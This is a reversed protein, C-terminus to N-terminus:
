HTVKLGDAWDHIAQWTVPGVVGDSTVTNNRNDHIWQQHSRVAQETAQGFDGDGKITAGSRILFYQLHNVAPGRAGRKIIPHAEGCVGNPSIPPPGVPPASSISQVLRSAANPTGNFEMHMTDKKGSWDGGWSFGLRKWCAIAERTITYHPSRSFENQNWNLDVALGWSHNSATNTGGIPRCCFAGTEAQNLHYGTAVTDDLAKKVLPAIERRCNVSVGGGTVRVQKDDQCHPWGPGWGRDQANGM